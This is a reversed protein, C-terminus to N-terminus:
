LQANFVVSHKFSCAEESVQLDCRQPICPYGEALLPDSEFQVNPPLSKAIIAATEAARTVDSHVLRLIRIPRRGYHDDITAGDAALAAIRQATISAQERGLLTL